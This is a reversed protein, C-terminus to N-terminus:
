VCIAAIEEATLAPYEAKLDNIAETTVEEAVGQAVAECDETSMVAANDVAENVYAQVEEKTVANISQIADGVAKADACAGSKSLTKDIVLAHIKGSLSAYVGSASGELSM